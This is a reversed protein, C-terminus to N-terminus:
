SQEKLLAIVEMRLERLKNSILLLHLRLTYFESMYALPVSLQENLEKQILKFRKIEEEILDLRKRPTDTKLESLEDARRDIDRVSGYWRYIRSRIRWSYIPLASKFLPLALTLLPILLVKLRDIMSALWFPFIKELWPPGSRLYRAADENMSLETLKESPFKGPEELLGGKKHIEIAQKLLLRILDPHIDNRVILNTTAALLVKDEKPINNKLDILGEGIVVRTLFKYRSSYALARKFSMLEVNPDHLLTSVLPATPSMVFFVADLKGAILQEAAQQNPIEVFPTNEKIVDNDQLLQLALAQVGSGAEGIAVKKGRLDTLYNMTQEKRHFLWLPEYFLSALASLKETSKFPAATGGQVFAASVKNALLYELAEVSGAIPQINLTFGQKYLSEKYEQAFTYYAGGERGTAISLEKPPAPEVFQFAIYFGIGALIIIPIWVKCFDCKM